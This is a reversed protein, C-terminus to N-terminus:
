LYYFFYRTFILYILILVILRTLFFLNLAGPEYILVLIALITQEAYLKVLVAPGGRLFKNTAGGDPSRPTHRIATLMEPNVSQTAAGTEDNKVMERSLYTRLFKGFLWDGGQGSSLM